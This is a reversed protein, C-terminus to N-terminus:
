FKYGCIDCTFMSDSLDCTFDAIGRFIL